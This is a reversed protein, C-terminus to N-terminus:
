KRIFRIESFLTPFVLSLIGAEDIQAYSDDNIENFMSDYWILDYNKSFQTPTLKGKLMGCEWKSFSVKAGDYYLIDYGGQNNEVIALSYKGGIKVNNGGLNRDLYSWVGIIYSNVEDQVYNNISSYNWDTKLLQHKNPKIKYVFREIEILSGSGVYYGVNCDEPSLCNVSSFLSLENEGIYINIRNYSKVIKVTNLGDYVNINDKINEKKLITEGGNKVCLLEVALSSSKWVDDHSTNNVGKFRLAYYNLSDVYSWVFGWTPSSVSKRKGKSNIIKYQKGPLNHKNAFRIYCEIDNEGSNVNIINFQVQDTNNDHLLYNEKVNTFQKNLLGFDNLYTLYKIDEGFCVNSILAFFYLLVLSKYKRM